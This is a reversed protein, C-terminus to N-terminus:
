KAGLRGGRSIEELVNGIYAAAAQFHPWGAALLRKTVNQHAVGLRRAADERKLNLLMWRVAKWQPVTWRQMALDALSLLADLARDADPSGTILKTWRVPPRKGSLEELRKRARVFATGDQEYPNKRGRTSLDGVGIAARFRVFPTLGGAAVLARVYTLIEFARPIDRIVCQFEDGATIRFAIRTRFSGKFRREAEHFSRRILRDLRM